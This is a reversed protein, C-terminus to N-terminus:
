KVVAEEPRGHKKLYAEAGEAGMYKRILKPDTKMLDVLILGDVCSGFDEDLNFSLLTGNLNLYHRLLLPVGKRDQEIESVLGSVDEVTHVTESLERRSPGVPDSDRPPNRAKVFQAFDRDTKNEKLFRVILGRSVSQYDQSISVPGFMLTLDDNRRIFEGIGRWILSLSATKRQYKSVVFSRGMELGDKLRELLPKKFKFLTSTYLGRKGHAAVIEDTRGVRYSGVLERAEHNWMFLHLYYDDFADLDIERGTGEGVERFTIERLRGIERLTKPIQKATAILVKYERQEVLLCDDPLASIEAELDEPPMPDVVPVFTEQELGPVHPVAVTSKRGGEIRDRLIYTKVRLHNILEQDDSFKAIKGRVIPSGIRVEVTSEVRRVLEKPLMATRLLPHLMGLVHFLASNRGDFYLPVVTAQTRRILSAIHPNWAPDTVKGRRLHFHSVVGSPFTALLGGDRLHRLAETMPKRNRQAAEEGGFVNVPILWPRMDVLAELMENVLLKMDPRRRLLIDGLIIGDAGGFPHNAVVFVPGEAPIHELDSEPLAYRIKMKDLTTTFFNETSGNIQNYYDNIRDIAFAREAVGALGRTLPFRYRGTLDILKDTM